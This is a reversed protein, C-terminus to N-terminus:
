RTQVSILARAGSADMSIRIAPPGAHLFEVRDPAGDRAREFEGSRRLRDRAGSALTVAIYRPSSAAGAAPQRDIPEVSAVLDLAAGLVEGNEPDSLVLSSLLAAIEEFAARFAAPAADYQGPVWGDLLRRQAATLSDYRALRPPEQAAM